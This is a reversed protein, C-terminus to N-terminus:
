RLGRGPGRARYIRTAGRRDQRYGPPGTLTAFPNFCNLGVPSPGPPVM